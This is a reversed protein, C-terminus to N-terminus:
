KYYRILILLIFSSCIDVTSIHLALVNVLDSYNKLLM